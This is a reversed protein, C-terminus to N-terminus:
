IKDKGYFSIIRYYFDMFPEDYEDEMIYDMVRDFIADDEILIELVKFLAEKEPTGTFEIDIGRDIFFNTMERQNKYFKKLGEVCTRLVELKKDNEKIDIM